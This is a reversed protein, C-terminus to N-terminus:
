QDLLGSKSLLEASIEKAQDGIEKRRVADAWISEIERNWKVLRRQINVLEAATWIDYEVATWEIFYKSEELLGIVAIKGGEHLSFSGVRALNAALGGMRIPLTDKMYRSKREDINKM